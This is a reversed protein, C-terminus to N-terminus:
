EPRPRVPVPPRDLTYGPRVETLTPTSPPCGNTLATPHAPAPALLVPHSSFGPTEASNVSRSQRLHTEMHQRLNDRRAFSKGCGDFTCHHPRRGSHVSEHRRLHEMRGFRAGCNGFTCAHPKLNAGDASRRNRPRRPAGNPSSDTLNPSSLDSGPASSNPLAELTSVETSIPRASRPRVSAAHGHSPTAPSASTGVLYAASTADETVPNLLFSIRTCAPPPVPYAVSPAPSARWVTRLPGASSPERLRPYTASSAPTSPPHDGYLAAVAALQPLRLTHVASAPPADPHQSLNTQMHPLSNRLDAFSEAAYLPSPEPPKIFSESEIAGMTGPSAPPPYCTGDPTVSTATIESLNTQHLLANSPPPLM